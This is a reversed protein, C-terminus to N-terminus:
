EIGNKDALWVPVQISARINTEKDAAEDIEVVIQSKPLWVEEDMFDSQFKVAKATQAIIAGTITVKEDRRAM